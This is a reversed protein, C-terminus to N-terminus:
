QGEGVGIEVVLRNGVKPLPQLGGQFAPSINWTRNDAIRDVNADNYGPKIPKRLSDTTQKDTSHFM